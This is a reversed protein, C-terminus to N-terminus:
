IRRPCPKTAKPSSPALPPARTQVRQKAQAANTQQAEKEAEPRALDIANRWKLKLEEKEDMLADITQQMDKITMESSDDARSENEYLRAEAEKKLQTITEEAEARLQREECLQAEVESLKTMTQELRSSNTAVKAELEANRAELSSLEPESSVHEPESSVPPEPQAPSSPAELAPSIAPSVDVSSEPRPAPPPFPDVPAVSVEASATTTAAPVQQPVPLVASGVAVLIGHSTPVLTALPAPTDEQLEEGQSGEDSEEEEDESGEEGMEDELAGMAQVASMADSAERAKDEARGRAIEEAANLDMTSMLHEDQYRVVRSKSSAASRGRKAKDKEVMSKVQAAKAALMTLRRELEAAAGQQQKESPKIPSGRNLRNLAVTARKAANVSGLQHQEMLLHAKKQLHASLMAKKVEGATADPSPKKMSFHLGARREIVFIRDPGASGAPEDVPRTQTVEFSYRSTAGMGQESQVPKSLARASLLSAHPIITPM